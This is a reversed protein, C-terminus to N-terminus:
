QFFQHQGDPRGVTPHHAARQHHGALRHRRQRGGTSGTTGTDSDILGVRLAYALPPTDPLLQLDHEDRVYRANDWHFTPVNQETTVDGPTYNTSDAVTSFDDLRDLHVFPQLNVRYPGSDTQWYLIVQAYGDPEIVRQSLSYGILQIGNKFDYAATYQAPLAQEPPSTITFLPRLLPAIFLALLAVGAAFPLGTRWALSPQPASSLPSINKSSGPQMLSFIILGIVTLISIALGALRLPTEGFELTITHRGAPVDLLILGTGPEPTIAISHGDSDAQWGPYHFHLFRLTVPQPADIQYRHTTATQTHLTAQVNSPLANRDLREPFQGQQFADVLPSTTPPVDVTEPLYEGLTTTGISQSSREYNIQDAITPTGFRTFATVPYLLPAVALLQVAIVPGAAWGQWRAPILLIAAGATIVLGLNALGLLRWPFEAVQLLPLADWVPRSQSLTMFTAVATLGAFFLIIAVAPRPSADAATQATRLRRTGYIIVAPLGLGALLLTVVGLTLPVYTNAARTDLPAVWALLESWHPYRIFFPSKEVYVDTQARTYAREFFAPLWFFASLGLGFLLPLTTKIFRLASQTNRGRRRQTKAVRCGQAGAGKCGQM